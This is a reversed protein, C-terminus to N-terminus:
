IVFTLRYNNWISTHTIFVFITIFVGIVCKEKNRKDENCQETDDNESLILNQLGENIKM